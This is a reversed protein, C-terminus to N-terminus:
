VIFSFAASNYNLTEELPNKHGEKEYKYSQLESFSSFKRSTSHYPSSFLSKNMKNECFFLHVELFLNREAHTHAHTGASTHTHARAHAHTHTHSLPLCISLCVSISHTRTRTQVGIHNKTYACLKTYFKVWKEQRFQMSYRGRSQIFVIIVNRTWVTWVTRRSKANPQKHSQELRKRIKECSEM